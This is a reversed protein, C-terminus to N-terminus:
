NQRLPPVFKACNIQGYFPLNDQLHTLVYGMIRLIIPSLSGQESFPQVLLGGKASYISVDVALIM